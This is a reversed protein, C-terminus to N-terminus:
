IRPIPAPTPKCGNLPLGELVKKRTEESHWYYIERVESMKLGLEEAVM